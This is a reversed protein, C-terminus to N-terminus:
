GAGGSDNHKARRTDDGILPDRDLRLVAGSSSLLPSIENIAPLSPPLAPLRDGSIASNRQRKDYLEEALALFEPDGLYRRLYPNTVLWRYNKTMPTRAIHELAIGTEGLVLALNALDDRFRPADRYKELVHRAEVLDGMLAAVLGHLIELASTKAFGSYAAMASVLTADAAELEGAHVYVTAEFLALQPGPVSLERLLSLSAEAEALRKLQILALVKQRYPRSSLTGLAIARECASVAAEYFGLRSYLTAAYHYGDPGEPDLDLGRQTLTLAQREDGRQAEVQALLFLSQTHEPEADLARILIARSESLLRASAAHPPYVQNMKLSALEALADGYDPALELARELDREAQAVYEPFKTNM